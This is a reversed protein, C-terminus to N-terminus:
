DWCQSQPNLNCELWSQCFVTLDLFDVKCDYNFDMLPRETCRIQNVPLQKSYINGNDWCHWVVTNGGIAPQSERTPETCVPFIHQTYIDYGYINTDYDLNPEARWIILGNNIAPSNPNTGAPAVEFGQQTKLDYGRLAVDKAYVAKTTYAVMDGDIALQQGSATSIIQESNNSIDYCYLSSECYYIVRSESISPLMESYIKNSILFETQYILNYGYLDWYNGGRLKKCYVVNNGDIDVWDYVFGTQNGIPFETHTLLDYGYITYEGLGIQTYDRDDIWVVINGSIKPNWQGKSDTCIPLEINTALDKTYIDGNKSYVVMNGDIDPSDGNAVFFVNPDSAFCIKTIVISLLLVFLKIKRKEKKSM